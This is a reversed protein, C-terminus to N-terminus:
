RPNVIVIQNLPVVFKSERPNPESLEPREDTDKEIPEMGGGYGISWKSLGDPPTMSGPNQAVVEADIWTVRPRNPDQEIKVVRLTSGAQLLYEQETNNLDSVIGLYAGQSGPPVKVRVFIDDGLAPTDALSLSTFGPDHILSGPQIARFTELVATPMRYSTLGRVGIITEDNSGLTLARSVNDIRERIMDTTSDYLGDRLTGNLVQFDYDMDQMTYGNVAEFLSEDNMVMEQWEAFKENGWEPGSTKDLFNLAGEAFEPDFDPQGGPAVARPVPPSTDGSLLRDIEAELQEDTMSAIDPDVEDSLLVDCRCMPHLPPDGEIFQETIPIAGAEDYQDGMAVCEECQRGDIEVSWYKKVGPNIFGEQIGQRWAENRGENAARMIETRAIMESRYRHIRRAYRDTLTDTVKMADNFSKGDMIAQNFTRDRFNRIWGAQRSTVGISDRVYRAIQQPNYLGVAGSAVLERVIDIQEQTVETILSGAEKAAWAAAEPRDADFRYSITAKQIKPLKSGARKGADVLEAFLEDQLKGQADYWPDLNLMNVVFDVSRHAIADIWKGEDRTVSARVGDIADMMTRMVRKQSATLEQRATPPTRQKIRLM